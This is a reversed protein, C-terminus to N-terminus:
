RFVERSSTLSQFEDYPKVEASECQFQFTKPTVFLFNDLKLKPVNLLVWASFLYHDSLAESVLVESSVESRIAFKKKKQICTM